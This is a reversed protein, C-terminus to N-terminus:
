ARTRRDLEGDLEMYEVLLAMVDGETECPILLLGELQDMRTQLQERTLSCTWSM